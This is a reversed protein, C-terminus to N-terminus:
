GLAAEQLRTAAEAISKDDNPDVSVMGVPKSGGYNRNLSRAYSPDYHFELLSRALEVHRGKELLANWELVREKGVNRELRSSIERFREQDRYETYDRATLRARAEIDAQVDMVKAGRMRRMLELPVRLKGIRGSESEVFVPRTQDMSGLAGCLASEFSKQTPQRGLSGFLSGRHNALGELDLCQSGEKALKSLLLTKGAGTPGRLVHWQFREPLAELSDIVHRRYAKYGGPISEARWGVKRMTVVLSESRMGGRWCYVLPRWDREKDGLFGKAMKSINDAVLGMGLKRAAFSNEKHLAGVVHRQDDTLVPLNVAGPVHDVAYESESRVDIVDSYEGMSNFQIGVM